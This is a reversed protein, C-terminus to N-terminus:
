PLRAEDAAGDPEDCRSNRPFLRVAETVGPNSSNGTAEAHTLAAARAAFAADCDHQAALAASYWLRAAALLPLTPEVTDRASSLADDIAANAGAADGRHLMVRAAVLRPWLMNPHRNEVQAALQRLLADADGPACGAVPQESCALALIAHLHLVISGNEDAVGEMLPLAQLVASRAGAFDRRLLDLQGRTRLVLARGRAHEPTDPHLAMARDLMSASTDLDGLEMRRAAELRLSYGMFVGVGGTQQETIALMRECSRAAVHPGAAALEVICLKQSNFVQGIRPKGGLAELGAEAEALRRRAARMSGAQALAWGWNSLGLLVDYSAPDRFRADIAHMQAYAQAAEEFRGVGVLGYGLNNYGTAMSESGEGYRRRRQQLAERELELAAAPRKRDMEVVALADLVAILAPDDQARAAALARRLAAEGAEHDGDAVAFEGHLTLAGIAVPDSAPLASAALDVARRGLARSQAREGLRDNLRAFMLMLDIRQAPPLSTDADVQQVGRAVLESLTPQRAPAVGEDLPEFLREVFDRVANARQAERTAQQAEHNARAAERRAERAQLVALGLAAVVSLLLALTTAVGGRHRAIFKGTRYWGSPPHALVPENALHREIDDALAGASAYRRRPQDATAHLVINDLDGRIQRRTKEPPAPLVGVGTAPDITSSPTRTEGPDRRQGTILEGLLVGLSYVDTATTIQGRTFQEPAAYAPTMAHHLTRTADDGADADLLKAIGFDLLKVGGDATVLVNSPKLDRHVILARHAAEVARCVAVFLRLRQALDLARERAHVLISSGEVLELAIYPTGTDTIGGEILRAIGAHELQGLARREDRFRRQEDATYLFRRLVKLAVHQEVGAQERAARFVISSGGEGLKGLLRYPGVSTGILPTDVQAEGVRDLLAGVSQDVVKATTAADAALMRELRARQEADRCHAALWASREAPVIELAAEFLDRPPRGSMPVDGDEGV